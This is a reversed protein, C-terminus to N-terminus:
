GNPTPGKERWAELEEEILRLANERFVDEGFKRAHSRIWVPDFEHEVAEFKSICEELSEVTQEPFFLGSSRAVETQQVVTELAGGKGYALVPLGYAMVELPIMGFDEEGPFLLARSMHIFEEIKKWPLTGTFEINPGAKKELKERESGDGIVVLRKGNRNFADVLLDIKKYPTIAGFSLYITKEGERNLPKEFLRNEIPPYLVKSPRQYYRQIRDAVNRSNALYLDVNDITTRDWNRLYEFGMKAFPRIANPLSQLYEETFGWCYRMPSHVYCIHPINRPVKVGKAPGSESSIVLDYNGKVKLSRIGMPYLPFIKQYHKRVLPTDLVSTFVPQTPFEEGYISPDKFLTYIDADPFLELLNELVKEGGRRTILWYHLIAVKM